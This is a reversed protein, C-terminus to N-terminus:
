TGGRVVRVKSLSSDSGGQFRAGLRAMTQLGEVVSASIREGPYIFPIGPPYPIIMDASYYGAAETLPLEIIEDRHRSPRAFSVPESSPPLLPFRMPDLSRELREQDGLQYQESILGLARAVRDSDASTSFPSFVLLVHSPDAMEVMCGHQELLEQLEYGSLTGTADRVPQKFPDRLRRMLLGSNERHESRKVPSVAATDDSDEEGHTQYCRMQNPLVFWPMENMGDIFRQVAALGQALMERGRTHILQRAVDLSAMIPYSPSSTQLMRITRAIWEPDVRSSRVHLMAGMTLASLMKHTSQVVADAGFSLASVPVAEHFGFHAGHAEDVLVAAGARHATDVIYSLDSAYGFYNPRTLFVAKAEPYRRLAEQFAVADIGAAYGTAPDWAPTLFVARAQALMLGNLVSKHVFRDVLILDGPQCVSLIMALNGLTSGQVLFFTRDAGYCEAALLEAERIVGEPQHLDDLGTIETYDLEMIAKLGCVAQPIAAGNKHGPVHFSATQKSKHEILREYLPARHKDVIAAERDRLLNEIM